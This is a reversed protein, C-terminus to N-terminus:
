SFYIEDLLSVGNKNYYTPSQLQEKTREFSLSPAASPSYKIANSVKLIQYTLSDKFTEPRKLVDNIDRCLERCILEIHVATTDMKSDNLLQIFKNCFSDIDTCGLHENDEILSIIAKLVTNLENNESNFIFVEENNELLEKFHIMIRNDKDRVPNTELLDKLIPGPYLTLPIIFEKESGNRYKISFSKIGLLEDEKDISNEDLIISLGSKEKDINIFIKNKDINFIQLFMEPWDIKSSFVQQLHKASLLLQTILETLLLIALIGIHIEENILHLKGYCVKCIHKDESKCKIPSRFKITKGILHEHLLPDFVELQGTEENLFNRLYYREATEKSDILIELYEDSHCDDIKESLLTDVLLITLKRTLYGSNKVQVFNTILAKRAIIANIFYDTINSLGKMYNTEIVHPIITSDIDAKLGIKSIVEKFQKPNIGSNGIFYPKFCTDEDILINILKEFQKNIFKEIDNFELNKPVKMNFIKKFKPNEHYIKVLDFYTLTTGSLINAIGSINDMKKIVKNFSIGINDIYEKCNDQKLIYNLIKNYYDPITKSNFKSFLDPNIFDDPIKINLDILPQLLILQTILNNKRVTKIKNEYSFKIIKNRESYNNISEEIITNLFKEYLDVDNSYNEFIIPQDYDIDLGNQKGEEM